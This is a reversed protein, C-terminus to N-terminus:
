AAYEPRSMSGKVFSGTAAFFDKLYFLAMIPQTKGKRSAIGGWREWDAAKKAASWM